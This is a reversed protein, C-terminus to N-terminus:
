QVIEECIETLQQARHACTHRKRITELGSEAIQKRERDDKLLHQIAEKM